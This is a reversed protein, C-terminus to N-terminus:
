SADVVTCNVVSGGQYTLKFKQGVGPVSKDPLSLSYGDPLIHTSEEVLFNNIDVKWQPTFINGRANVCDAKLNYIGKRGYSGQATLKSDMSNDDFQDFINAKKNQNSDQPQETKRKATPKAASIQIQKQLAAIKEDKNDLQLRLADISENMSNNAAAGGFVYGGVSAVGTLLILTKVWGRLDSLKEGQRKITEQAAAATPGLVNLHAEYEQSIRHWKIALEKAERLDAYNGGGKRAADLERELRLTAHRMSECTQQLDAYESRLLELEANREDKSALFDKPNLGEKQMSSAAMKLAQAAENASSNNLASSILKNIKSTM